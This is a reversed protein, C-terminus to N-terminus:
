AKGLFKQFAEIDIEVWFAGNYLYISSYKKCMDWNNNKAITLVNDISIVCFHKNSIRFNDHASPNAIKEFDIPYIEKLLESLISSHKIITITSELIEFEPKLQATTKEVLKLVNKKPPISPKIGYQEATKYFTSINISTSSKDSLCKDYQADCMNKSYQKNCKSIQHYYERGAEGFETSIAIGINKWTIFDTTIDINSKKIQAIYDEFQNSTSVSTSKQAKKDTKM